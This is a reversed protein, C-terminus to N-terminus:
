MRYIAYRSLFSIKDRFHREKSKLVDRIQNVDEGCDKVYAYVVDIDREYIGTEKLIRKIPENKYYLFNINSVVNEVLYNTYRHEVGDQKMFFLIINIYKSFDYEVYANKVKIVDSIVQDTTRNYAGMNTLM